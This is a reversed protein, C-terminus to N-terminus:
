PDDVHCPEEETESGNCGRGGESGGARSLNEDGTVVRVEVGLGAVRGPGTVDDLPTQREGAVATARFEEEDLGVEAVEEQAVVEVPSASQDGEGLVAVM